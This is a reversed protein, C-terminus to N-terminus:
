PQFILTHGNGTLRLVKGTLTYSLKQGSLAELLKNEINMTPPCAMRTSGIESFILHHDELQFTGFYRNCGAFGSLRKKGMELELTPLGDPFDQANLTLDDITRLTWIDNLRYDGMYTGCGKYITEKGAQTVYVNTTWDSVAGSMDDTCSRRIIELRLSIDNGTASYRATLQGAADDDKIAKAKLEPGDLAKFFLEEKGNLEVSWFPENGTAVFVIGRTLRDQTARDAGEPKRSLIYREAIPAPLEHKDGDLQVLNEGTFKFYQKAKSNAAQLVVLCEKDLKWAGITKVPDVSREQYVMTEEYHGGAHLNLSYDIGPCDACPLVGTWSGAPSSVPGPSTANKSNSCASLFLVTLILGTFSLLIRTRM